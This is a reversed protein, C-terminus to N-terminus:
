QGRSGFPEILDKSSATAAFNKTRKVQDAYEYEDADASKIMKPVLKQGWEVALATAISNEGCRLDWNKLLTVPEKLQTYLSDNTTINKEFANVM